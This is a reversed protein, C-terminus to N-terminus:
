ARPDKMMRQTADFLMSTAAFSRPRLTAAVPDAGVTFVCGTRAARTASMCVQALVCVSPHHRIANSLRCIGYSYMLVCSADRSAFRRALYSTIRKGGPPPLACDMTCPRGIHRFGMGHFCDSSVGLMPVYAWVSSM